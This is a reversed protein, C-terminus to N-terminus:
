VPLRWCSADLLQEGDLVGMGGQHMPTDSAEVALNTLDVLSLREIPANV